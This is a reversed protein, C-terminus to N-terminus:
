ACINNKMFEYIEQSKSTTGVFSAAFKVFKKNFIKIFLKEFFPLKKYLNEPNKVMFNLVCSNVLEVDTLESWEIYGYKENWFGNEDAWFVKKPHIITLVSIPLGVFGFVLLLIWGIIWYFYPDNSCFRVTCFRAFSNAELIFFVSIVTFILAVLFIILYSYRTNYVEFQINESNAM